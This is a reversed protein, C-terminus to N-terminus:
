IFGDGTRYFSEPVEHWPTFTTTLEQTEGTEAAKYGKFLIEHTHLQM